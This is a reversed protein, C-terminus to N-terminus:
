GILLFMDNLSVELLAFPAPLLEASGVLHAQTEHRVGSIEVRRGNLLGDETLYSPSRLRALVTDATQSAPYGKQLFGPRAGRQPSGRDRGNHDADSNDDSNEKVLRGV